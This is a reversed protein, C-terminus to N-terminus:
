AANRYLRPVRFRGQGPLGNDRIGFVLRLHLQNRERRVSATSGAARDKPAHGFLDKGRNWGRQQQQMGGFPLLSGGPRDDTGRVLGDNDQEIAAYRRFPGQVLSCTEGLLKTGGENQDSHWWARSLLYEDCLSLFRDGVRRLLFCLEQSCHGSQADFSRGGSSIRLREDFPKSSMPLAIEENHCCSLLRQIPRFLEKAVPIHRDKQQGFISLFCYAWRSLEHPPESLLPCSRHSTAGLRTPLPEMQAEGQGSM